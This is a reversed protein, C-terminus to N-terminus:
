YLFVATRYVRPFIAANTPYIEKEIVPWRHCNPKIRIGRGDNLPQAPFCVLLVLKYYLKIKAIVLFQDVRRHWDSANQEKRDYAVVRRKEPQFREWMIKKTQQYEQSAVYSDECHLPIWTDGDLQFCRPVETLKVNRNNNLEKLLNTKTEYLLLYGTAKETIEEPFSFELPDVKVESVGPRVLSASSGM